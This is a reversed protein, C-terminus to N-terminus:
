KGNKMRKEFNLTKYEFVNDLYYGPILILLFVSYGFDINILAFFICISIITTYLVINHKKIRSNLQKACREQMQEYEIQSISEWMGDLFEKDTKM